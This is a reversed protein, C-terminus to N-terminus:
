LRKAVLYYQLVKVIVEGTELLHANHAVVAGAFRCEQLHEEADDRGVAAPEVDAVRHLKPIERLVAQLKILLLLDDVDDSVNGFVDVETLTALIRRRLQQLMKEKSGFLLIVVDIFERAALLALQIEARYQHAIRVEKDEVLRRVVEVDLRQLNQLIVQLVEGAADDDHAVVSIEHVLNNVM